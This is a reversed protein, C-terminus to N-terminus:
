PEGAQDASLPQTEVNDLSRPEIPCTKLCVVVVTVVVVVVVVVVMVVVVVVAVVVYM